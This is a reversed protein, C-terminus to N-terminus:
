VMSFTSPSQLLQEMEKSVVRLESTEMVEERTQREEQRRSDVEVRTIEDKVRRHEGEM